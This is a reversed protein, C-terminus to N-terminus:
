SANAQGDGGVRRGEGERAVDAQSLMGSVHGGDDTVPARHVDGELMRQFAADLSDGEAVTVPRESMADSVATSDPSIGEAVVLIAIDRDTIVGLLQDGADVVAIISVDEDRMQRAADTVSADASITSASGTMADRVTQQQAM